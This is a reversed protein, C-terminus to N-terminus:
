WGIYVEIAEDIDNEELLTIFMQLIEKQWEESAENKADWPNFYRVCGNSVDYFIDSIAYHWFDQYTTEAAEGDPAKEYEENIQIRLKMEPSDSELNGELVTHDYGHKKAWAITPYDEDPSRRHKGAYDRIDVGHKKEIQRVMDSYSYYHSVLLAM